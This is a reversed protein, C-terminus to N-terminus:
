NRYVITELKFESDIPRIAQVRVYRINAEYYHTISSSEIVDENDFNYEGIDFWDEDQPLDYNSGQIKITETNSANKFNIIFTHNPSNDSKVYSSNHLAYVKGNDGLFTIFDDNPQIITPEDVLELDNDVIRVHFRSEWEVGSYLLEERDNDVIVVHAVYVGSELERLEEKEFVAIYRGLAENLVILEKEFQKNMDKSVCILKLVVNEGLQVSKRDHNRVSFEITNQVGKHLIFDTNYQPMNWREKEETGILLNYRNNEKIYLNLRIM